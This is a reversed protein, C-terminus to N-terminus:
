RRRLRVSHGCHRAAPTAAISLDALGSVDAALGGFAIVSAGENPSRWFMSFTELPIYRSAPLSSPRYRPRRRDRADYGRRPRRQLQRDSIFDYTFGRRQMLDRAAEFATGEAPANADGFHALRATGPGAVFEHFPYYLLM